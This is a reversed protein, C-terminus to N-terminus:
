HAVVKRGYRTPGLDILCEVWNSFGFKFGGKIKPGIRLKFFLTWLNINQVVCKSPNPGKPGALEFLPGHLRVM